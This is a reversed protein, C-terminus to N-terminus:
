RGVGGINRMNEDWLEFLEMIIKELDVWQFFYRSLWAKFIAIM